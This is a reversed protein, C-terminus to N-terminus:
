YKILIKIYQERNYFLSRFFYAGTSYDSVDLIVSGSLGEYRHILNGNLNFIEIRETQLENTEYVFAEDLENYYCRIDTETINNVSTSTDQEIGKIIAEDDFLRTICSCENVDFIHVDIEATENTKELQKVKVKFASQESFDENFFARFSIRNEDRNLDSIM